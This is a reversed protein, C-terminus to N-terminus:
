FTTVTVDEASVDSSGDTGLLELLEQDVGEYNNENKHKNHVYCGVGIGTAALAIGGLILWKRNAEFWSIEEVEESMRALKEVESMEETGNTNVEDKRMNKRREFLSEVEKSNYPTYIKRILNLM